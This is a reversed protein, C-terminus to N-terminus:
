SLGMLKKIRIITKDNKKKIEDFVSERGAVIGITLGIALWMWWMDMM